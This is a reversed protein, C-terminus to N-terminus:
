MLRDNCGMVAFKLWPSYILSICVRRNIESSGNQLDESSTLRIDCAPVEDM